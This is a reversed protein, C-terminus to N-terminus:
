LAFMLIRCNEMGNRRLRVGGGGNRAAAAITLGGL